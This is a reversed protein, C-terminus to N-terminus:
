SRLLTFLGTTPIANAGTDTRSLVYQYEDPNLGTTDANAVTIQLIGGPGNVIAIGGNATTKTIYVTTPDGYAHVVFSLTWGTIDEPTVCDAQYITDQFIKDEGQYMALNVILASAPM